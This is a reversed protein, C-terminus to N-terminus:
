TPTRKPYPALAVGRHTAEAQVMALAARVLTDHWRDIAGVATNVGPALAENIDLGVHLQV